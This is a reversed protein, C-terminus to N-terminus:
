NLNAVKRKTSPLVHSKSDRISDRYKLEIGDLSGIVITSDVKEVTIEIM